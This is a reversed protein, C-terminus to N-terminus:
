RNEVKQERQEINICDLTAKRRNNYICVFTINKNKKEHFYSYLHIQAFVALQLFIFPSFDWSNQLLSSASYVTPVHEYM